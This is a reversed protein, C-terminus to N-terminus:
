GSADVFGYVVMIVKTSRVTVIPPVPQEFIKLLVELCQTFRPVPQIFEPPECKSYLQEETLATAQDRTYMGKEIRSELHGLWELESM